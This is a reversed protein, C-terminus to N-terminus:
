EVATFKQPDSWVEVSGEPGTQIMGVRWQYNGPRLTDIVLGSKTLGPQDVLPVDPRALDLLQFRYLPTGDGVSAWDFRYGTEANSTVSGSVGAQQRRFSVTQALGELGSPAIASARVFLRGNAIGDLRAEPEAVRTEAIVDVFGADRALQLRYGSAGTMASFRFTVVPETQVKGPDILQPAPLLAERALAGDGHAAAGFGAELPMSTSATNVGVLGELVESTALGAKEDYGIRFQTGRVATVAVPNRVRFTDAPKQKAASVDARGSLVEVDIAAAGTIAYRRAKVVRARSQSPLSVRSGDAGVLTVFGNAGTQLLAGESLVQGRAAPEGGVTVPGSFTAIRLPMADYRLLRVPISLRTGVPMRRPNAIRNRKQVVTAAAENVLYRKALGNLTDEARVTYSLEDALTAQALAPTAVLCAGGAFLPLILPRFQTLM